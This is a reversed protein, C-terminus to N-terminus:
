FHLPWLVQLIPALASLAKHDAQDDRGLWQAARALTQRLFSRAPQAPDLGNAWRRLTSADPV